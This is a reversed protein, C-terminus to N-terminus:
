SDAPEGPGPPGREPFAELPIAGSVPAGLRELSRALDDPLPTSLELVRGGVPHSFELRRAHLWVRGPDGRGGSRGYVDDGCLPTGISALHVRIQHTRGTELRLELLTVDEWAALVAYHTRAPRGERRVAMMTPRRPDRGLPADVTGSDAELVGEALGLYTREVERRRLAATIAAHVATSRAVILLGSTDRDLRHVLGHRHSEGLAVLEPYRAVLGNLLTDDAHGAGPHVVIGAPKDVVVLHEDAYVVGFPVAAPRLDQEPPPLVVEVVTGAVLRTAREVPEGEVLVAGEEVMRRAVSRGLGSLVAVIRDARDGGLERPVTWRAPEAM